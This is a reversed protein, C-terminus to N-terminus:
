VLTILQYMGEYARPNGTATDIAYSYLLYPGPAANTALVGSQGPSLMALGIPDSIVPYSTPRQGTKIATFFAEIDTATTGPVVKSLVAENVVSSANVVLHNGAAALQGAPVEFTNDRLMIVDNIPNEQSCRLNAARVTSVVPAAGGTSYDFNVLQYTGPMLFETFTVPNARDLVAGGLNEADAVLARAAAATVSLDMSTVSLDAVYKALSVGPKLRSLLLARGSTATTTATFTVPGAPIEAPVILGTATLVVEVPAQQGSHRRAPAAQAVAPLAVAMGAPPLAALLRRRSLSKAGLRDRADRASTMFTVKTDRYNASYNAANDNGM